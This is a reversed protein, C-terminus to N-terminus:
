PNLQLYEWYLRNARLYLDEMAVMGAAIQAKLSSALVMVKAGQANISRYRVDYALYDSKLQDIEVRSQLREAESNPFISWFSLQSVREQIARGAELVSAADADLRAYEAQAEALANQLLFLKGDLDEKANLLILRETQIRALKRTKVQELREELDSRDEQMKRKAALEDLKRLIDDTGDRPALPPDDNGDRPKRAMEPPPQPLDAFPHVEDGLERRAQAAESEYVRKYGFGANRVFFNFFRGKSDSLILGSAIAQSIESYQYVAGGHFEIELTRTNRDYGVSKLASSRVSVRVIGTITPIEQGDDPPLAVPEDSLRINFNQRSADQKDTDGVNAPPRAIKVSPSRLFPVVLATGVAGIFVVIATTAFRLSRRRPKPRVRVVISPPTQPEVQASPPSPPPPPPVAWVPVPFQHRCFQCTLVQGAVVFDFSSVNRCRPCPISSLM